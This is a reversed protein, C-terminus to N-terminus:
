KNDRENKQKVSDRIILKSSLTVKEKEGGNLQKFLLRIAEVSMQSKPIDITTLPYPIIDINDFGIISYDNPVFKNKKMLSSIVKCALVDNYCIFLSDPPCKEIIENAIDDTKEIYFTHDKFDLGYFECREKITKERRLDFIDTGNKGIYYIDRCGCKLSYDVADRAGNEDDAQVCSISDNINLGFVVVPIQLSLISDMVEETNGFFDLIIGQVMKQKLFEIGKKTRNPNGALDYYMVEYGEKECLRGIVSFVNAYFPNKIDRLIVGINRYTGSSINQAFPNPFYGLENAKEIIEKRANNGVGDKGNLAYSVTSKSYGTIKALEKITIKSM